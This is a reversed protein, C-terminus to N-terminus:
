STTLTVTGNYGPASCVLQSYSFFRQQFVDQAELRIIGSGDRDDLQVEKGMSHLKWTDLQLLYGRGRPCFKDAVVQAPGTPLIIKITEFGVNTDVKQSDRIVDSGLQRVMNIYDIPNLFVHSPKGGQGMINAGAQLLAEHITGFSTGDTRVGTLRQDVSVDVGFMTTGAAVTGTRIWADLGAITANKDNNFYLFDGAAWNSAAVASAMDLVGNRQNGTVLIADVTGGTNRVATDGTGTVTLAAVVSDNVDFNWSDEAVSLTISGGLGSTSAIQGVVGGSRYCYTALRDALKNMAGDGEAKALDLFGGINNRSAAMALGSIEAIAYYQTPPCEFAVYSNPASLTNARAFSSAAKNTRAFLIPQKILEGSFDTNKPVLALFPRDKYCVDTMSVGQYYEKLGAQGQAFTLAM